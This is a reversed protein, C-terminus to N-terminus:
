KLQTTLFLHMKGCLWYQRIQDPKELGPETEVEQQDWSNKRAKVQSLKKPWQMM